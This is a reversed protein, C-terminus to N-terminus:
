RFRIHPGFVEGHMGAAQFRGRGEAFTLGWALASGRANRTLVGTFDLRQGTRIAYRTGPGQLHVLLRDRAGSGVWFIRPGVVDLVRAGRAVVHRGALSRLESANMPLLPQGAAVLSRDAAVRRTPTAAVTAQTGLVAGTATRREPAATSVAAAAVGAALLALLLLPTWWRVGSGRTSREAM